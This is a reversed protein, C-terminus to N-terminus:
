SFLETLSWCLLAWAAAGLFIEGWHWLYDGALKYETVPKAATNSLMVLEVYSGDARRFSVQPNLSLFKRFSKRISDPPVIQCPTTPAIIYGGSAPAM